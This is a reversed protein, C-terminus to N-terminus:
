GGLSARFIVPVCYVKLLLSNQSTVAALPIQSFKFTTQAQFLSCSAISLCGEETIKHVSVPSCLYLILPLAPSLTWTGHLNQGALLRWSAKPNWAQAGALWGAVQAAALSSSIPESLACLCLWTGTLGHPSCPQSHHCCAAPFKMYREFLHLIVSCWPSVPEQKGFYGRLLGLHGPHLCINHFSLTMRPSALNFLM